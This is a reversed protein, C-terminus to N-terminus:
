RMPLMEIESENTKIIKVFEEHYNINVQKYNIKAMNSLEAYSYLLKLQGFIANEGNENLPTLLPIKTDCDMLENLRM